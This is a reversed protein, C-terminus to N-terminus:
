SLEINDIECEVTNYISNTLTGHGKVIVKQNNFNRINNIIVEIYLGKEVGVFLILKKNKNYHLTRSSAILGKFLINDNSNIYYCGKYFNDNNMIWYGYKQLQEYKNKLMTINNKKKESYVSKSICLSEVNNCKAEYIHVWNRYCSNVNKLTSKWFRRPNHAKEYALQWVLQAYSLAHAKCFSYKRMNKLMTEVKKKYSPSKTYLKREVMKLVETDNKSYGRRIKDAYDEKCDFLKALIYIMDDDYVISNSDYVGIEYLKRTDAAAPRIIALCIALDNISKPKILLLAKRM